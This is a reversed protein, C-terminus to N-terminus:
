WTTTVSRVLGWWKVTSRGISIAHVDVGVGAREGGFLHPDAVEDLSDVAIGPPFWNKQDFVIM